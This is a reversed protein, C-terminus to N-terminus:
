APEQGRNRGRIGHGRTLPVCDLFKDTNRTKLQSQSVLLGDSTLVVENFRLLVPVRSGGPLGAGACACPRSEWWRDVADGSGVLSLRARCHSSDQVGTRDVVVVRVTGWRVAHDAGCTVPAWALASRTWGTADGGVLSDGGFRSWRASAVATILLRSHFWRAFLLASCPLDGNGNGNGREGEGGGM